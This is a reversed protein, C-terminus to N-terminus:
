TAAVSLAVPVLAGSRITQTFGDDAHEWQEPSLVVPNVELGVKAEVPRCAGRVTSLSATGIVAVDIDAPPPGVHGVYREAWSGFIWVGVVGEVPALAAALQATVGITKALLSRLDPAWPLSLNARVLRTRGVTEAVVIGHDALRAVERSATAQAVDAREALEGISLPTTEPAFLIGLLRLQQASRFIAVL